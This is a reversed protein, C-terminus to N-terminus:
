AATQSVKPPRAFRCCAMMLSNAIELFERVVGDIARMSTCDPVGNFHMEAELLM